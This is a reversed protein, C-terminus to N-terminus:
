EGTHSFVDSDLMWQSHDRAARVLLLNHALPAKRDASITDTAAIGDNLGMNYRAAEAAPDFRARNILEVVLVEEETPQATLDVARPTTSIERSPASEVNGSIATVVFYYTENNTLANIVYPSTVNEIWHGNEYSAISDPQINPETAYYISYNDADSVVSW